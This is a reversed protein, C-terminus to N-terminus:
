KQHHKTSIAYTVLAILIYGPVFFLMLYRPSIPIFLLYTCLAILWMTIREAFPLIRPPLSIHSTHTFMAILTYIMSLIIMIASIPWMVTWDEYPIIPTDGWWVHYQNLFILPIYGGFMSAGQLSNDTWYHLTWLQSKIFTQLSMQYRIFGVSYGAVYTIVGILVMKMLSLIQAKLSKRHKWISYTGHVIVIVLAPFYMKSGALLGLSIGASLLLWPNKPHRDSIDVLAIHVVLLATQIIDLLPGGVIQYRINTDTVLLFLLLYIHPGWRTRRACYWLIFIIMSIVVIIGSSKWYGTLQFLLGILYKGHPPHEANLLVPNSGNMHASGAYAYVVADSIPNKSHPVVYQSRNYLQELTQPAYVETLKNLHDSTYTFLLGISVVTIGLISRITSLPSHHTM